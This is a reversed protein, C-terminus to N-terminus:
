RLADEDITLTGADADLTARPASRRAGRNTPGHGIPADHVVPVGLDGLRADLMARVQGPDGCDAFKVPVIGACPGNFWGSRLLQTLSRDLRYPREASM